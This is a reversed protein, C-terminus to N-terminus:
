NTLDDGTGIQADPGGSRIEYGDERPTYGFQVGWPDVPMRGDKLYPGNWNIESGHTLLSQLSAPYVGNDVEYMDIALGINAISARAAAKQSEGVRRALRPTAVGVLIGIIVVVLLIEILTFGRRRDLRPKTRRASEREATDNM